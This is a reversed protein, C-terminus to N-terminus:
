APKLDGVNAQKKEQQLDARQLYYILVRSLYGAIIPTLLYGPANHMLDGLTFHMQDMSTIHVTIGDWYWFITTLAIALFFMLEQFYRPAFVKMKKFLELILWYALGLVIAIGWPACYWESTSAWTEVGSPSEFFAEKDSNYGMADYTFKHVARPSFPNWIPKFNYRAIGSNCYNMANVAHAGDFKDKPYPVSPILVVKTEGTSTQVYKNKEITGDPLVEYGTLASWSGDVAASFIHYNHYDRTEKEEQECSSFLVAFISLTLLAKKM